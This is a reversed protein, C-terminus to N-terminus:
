LVPPARLSHSVNLLTQSLPRYSYGALYKKLEFTISLHPWHQRLYRLFVEGLSPLTRDFFRLLQYGVIGATLHAAFMLSQNAATGGLVFHGSNQAIFIAVTAKFPDGSNRSLLSAIFFSILTLYCAALPSASNGGTLTHALLSTLLLSSAASFARLTRM